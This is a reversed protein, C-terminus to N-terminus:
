RRNNRNKRTKKVKRTKLIKSNKKNIKRHKKKTYGGQQLSAIELQKIRKKISNVVKTVTKLQLEEAERQRIEAANKQSLKAANPDLRKLEEFEPTKKNFVVEKKQRNAKIIQELLKKMRRKKDLEEKKANKLIKVIRAALERNRGIDFIEKQQAAEVQKRIATSKDLDTQTLAKSDKFSNKLEDLLKTDRLNPNQEKVSEIDASLAKEIKQQRKVEREQFKRSYENRLGKKRNSFFKRVNKKTVINKGKIREKFNKLVQTDNQIRKSESLLRFANNNLKQLNDNLRLNKEKAEAARANTKPM